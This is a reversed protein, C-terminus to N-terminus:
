HASLASEAVAGTRALQELLAAASQERGALAIETQVERARRGYRPHDLVESVAQGVQEASPTQTRLNVGVGSYAVRASVEAKDETKGAAVIPVGHSLALQVGGFGGNTVFVDVYPLLRDFPIYREVRANSPLPGLVAPDPGGTVAVVLVDTGGLAELSPRLLQDSATAVTGQNVLVVDRVYQLEPWWAPPQWTPDALPRPPGVYRVQEPLDTRSYEFSEAGLQLYLKSEGPYEFVTAKTPALGLEHRIRNVEVAMPRFLVSRMFTSLLKDRVRGLPGSQPAFGLGFPPLDRSPFGVVSIGFAAFPPGGLEQLLPGGLFGTDGVVVDAPEEALLARLDAVQGPVPKAFGTVMDFQLKRLGRHERREPYYDDLSSVSYDDASMPCYTAGVAAIQDAFAVGAYWRVSHGREVLAQAIPLAPVTHGVAPMTAFLFRSM